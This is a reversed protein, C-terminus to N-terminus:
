AVRFFIRVASGSASATTPFTAALAGTHGGSFYGVSASGAAPISSGAYIPVPWSPSSTVRMTPGTTTVVQAAGGVWCLGAPLTTSVTIEQVTASDGNITGADLVLAGPYTSGSDAYIGIRFKSGAEGVTTVEAGIRDITVPKGLLMPALRLAGNTQIGTTVLSPSFAYYYLGSKLAPISPQGAFSRMTM